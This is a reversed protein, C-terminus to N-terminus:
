YIKEEMEFSMTQYGFKQPTSIGPLCINLAVSGKFGVFVCSYFDDTRCDLDNRCLNFLFREGTGIYVLCINLGVFEGLEEEACYDSCMGGVFELSNAGSNEQAELNHLCLSSECDAEDVCSNGIEGSDLTGKACGSFFLSSIVLLSLFLRM